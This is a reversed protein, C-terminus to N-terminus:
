SGRTNCPPSGIVPDAPLVALADVSVDPFARAIAIAARPTFYSLDAADDLVRRYADPLHYRRAAPDADPADVTPFGAVAQQELWERAYREACGTRTALEGPTADGAALARYFGLRSGLHVCGVELTDVVAGFLREM